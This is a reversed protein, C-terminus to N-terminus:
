APLGALRLGERLREADEERRLYSIDVAWSVYESPGATPDGRWFSRVGEIFIEGSLQAESLRGLHGYASARWAMYRPHRAPTGFTLRELQAAAESYKGLQFLAHALFYKYWAPHCPNLRFAVREAAGAPQRVLDGLILLGSRGWDLGSM